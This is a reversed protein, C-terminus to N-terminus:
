SQRLLYCCFLLEAPPQAGRYNMRRARANQRSPTFGQILIGAPGFNWLTLIGVRDGLVRGPRPVGSRQRSIPIPPARKAQQVPSPAREWM